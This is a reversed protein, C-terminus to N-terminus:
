GEHTRSRSEAGEFEYQLVPAIAARRRRNMALRQHVIRYGAGVLAPMRTKHEHYFEMAARKVRREPVPRQAPFFVRRPSVGDVVKESTYEVFVSGIEAETHADSGAVSPVGHEVVFAYNRRNNDYSDGGNFCEVIDTSSLVEEVFRNSRRMENRFIGSSRRFPHPLLVAGGQEKIRKVLEPVRKEFIMEALGLGIVHSGDSATFECGVVIEVDPPRIRQLALAGEITDHDTVCLRGIGARTAREFVGEPSTQCDFSFSTHVHYDVRIGNQQELGDVPVTPDTPTDPRSMITGTMM